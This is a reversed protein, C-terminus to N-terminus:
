GYSPTRILFACVVVTVTVVDVIAGGGVVVSGLRGGM